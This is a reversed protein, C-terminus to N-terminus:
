QNAGPISSATRGNTLEVIFGPKLVLSMASFRAYNSIHRSHIRWGDLAVHLEKRIQTRLHDNTVLQIVVILLPFAFNALAPLASM